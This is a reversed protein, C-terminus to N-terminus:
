VGRSRDRFSGKLQNYFVITESEEFSYLSYRSKYLEIETYLFFVLDLNFHGFHVEIKKYRIYPM